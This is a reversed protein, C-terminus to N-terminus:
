HCIYYIRLMDGADLFVMTDRNSVRESLKRVDSISMRPFDVSSPVPTSFQRNQWGFYEEKTLGVVAYVGRDQDYTALIAFFRERLILEGVYTIGQSLFVTPPFYSQDGQVYLSQEDVSQNMSM